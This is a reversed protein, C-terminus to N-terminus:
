EGGVAEQGFPVEVGLSYDSSDAIEGGIGGFGWGHDVDGLEIGGIGEGGGDLGFNAGVELRPEGFVVGGGREAEGGGAGVVEELGPGVELRRLLTPEYTNKAGTLGGSLHGQ